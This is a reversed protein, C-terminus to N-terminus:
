STDNIGYLSKCISISTDIKESIRLLFVYEKNKAGGKRLTSHRKNMLNSLKIRDINKVFAL